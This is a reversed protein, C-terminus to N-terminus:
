LTVYIKRKKEWAGELRSVSLSEGRGREGLDELPFFARVDMVDLRGFWIWGFYLVGAAWEVRGGWLKGKGV